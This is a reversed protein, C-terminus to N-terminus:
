EGKVEGYAREVAKVNGEVIEDRFKGSFKKKLGKILNEVKILGAVKVLAGIMPTNPIPKGLCDLAIQMADVTYVKGGKLGIEERVEAPSKSTNVILKGDEPM